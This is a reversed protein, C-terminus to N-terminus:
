MIGYMECHVMIVRSGSSAPFSVPNPIGNVWWNELRILQKKKCFFSHILLYSLFVLSESMREKKTLLRFSKSLTSWEQNLSRLPDRVHSVLFLYHAFLFIFNVIKKKLHVCFDLKKWIKKLSDSMKQSLTFSRNAWFFSRNGWKSKKWSRCSCIEWPQEKTM